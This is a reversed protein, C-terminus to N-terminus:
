GVHRRPKTRVAQRDTASAVKKAATHAAQELLPLPPRRTVRPPGRLRTARHPPQRGPRLYNEKVLCPLSQPLCLRPDQHALSASLGQIHQRGQHLREETSVRTVRRPPLAAWPTSLRAVPCRHVRSKSFGMRLTEKGGEMSALQRPFPAPAPYLSRNGWKLEPPESATRM